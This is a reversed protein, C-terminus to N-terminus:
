SPRGRAPIRVLSQMLLHGGKGAEAHAGSGAVPLATRCPAM